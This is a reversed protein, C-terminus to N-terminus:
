DRKLEKRVLFVRCKKGQGRISGDLADDDDADDLVEQVIMGKPLDGEKVAEGVLDGVSRGPACIVYGELGDGVEIHRETASTFSDV